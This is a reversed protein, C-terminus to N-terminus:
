FPNVLLYTSDNVGMIQVILNPFVKAFLNKGCNNLFVKLPTIVVRLDPISTAGQIFTAGPVNPLFLLHLGNFLCVGM